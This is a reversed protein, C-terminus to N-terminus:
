WCLFGALSYWGSRKEGGSDPERVHVSTLVLTRGGVPVALPEPSQPREGNIQRAMRPRVESTIDFTEGDIEITVAVEGEIEHRSYSFRRLRTYASVDIVAEPSELEFLFDRPDDRETGRSLSFGFTKEFDEGGAKAWEPLRASARSLVRWAGSVARMEEDSLADKAGEAVPVGDSLLGHARYIRVIRALQSRNAADVINLPTASGALFAAALVLFSLHAWAGRRVFTLACAAISFVIYLLSAVRAQTYGYAGVRISFSAIQAAVLPLMFLAGYKRFFSLFRGEFPLSAFYLFLYAATAVSVFPNIKGVPMTLAFLCKVLYAYLVLLLALALPFLIRLVVARYAASIAIENRGRSAFAVFIGPFMACMPVTVCLWRVVSDAARPLDIVLETFAVDVILLGALACLSSVKAVGTAVALNAAAMGTGQSRTLLFFVVSMLAFSVGFVLLIRHAEDLRMVLLPLAALSLVAVAAQFALQAKRGLRRELLLQAAVSFIMGLACCEAVREARAMFALRAAIRTEGDAARFIDYASAYLAVAVAGTVGLVFLAPFRGAAPRVARGLKVFVGPIRFSFRGMRETYRFFVLTPLRM